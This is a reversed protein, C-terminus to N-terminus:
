YKGDTCCRGQGDRYLRQVTVMVAETNGMLVVKTSGMLVAVSNRVALAEINRM